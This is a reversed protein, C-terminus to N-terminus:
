KSVEPMDVEPALTECNGLERVLDSRIWEGSTLSWWVYGDPAMVQGEVDMVQGSEIQGAQEFNIGPGERLNVNQNVTVGCYGEDSEWVLDLEYIWLGRAECRGGFGTAFMALGYSGERATLDDNRMVFEGNIFVLLEDDRVIAMFHHPVDLSYTDFTFDFIPDDFEGPQDLLFPGGDSTFGVLTYATALSGRTEIRSMLACSELEDTNSPTFELEAAIVYDTHPRFEALPTYFRGRGDFFAYGTQYVLSGGLPIIENAQLEEVAITYDEAFYVLNDFSTSPKSPTSTAKPTPTALFNEFIATSTMNLESFIATATRMLDSLKPTATPALENSFLATSTQFIPALESTPSSGQLESAPANSGSQSALSITGGVMLIVLTVFLIVPIRYTSSM